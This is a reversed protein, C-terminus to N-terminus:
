LTNPKEKKDLRKKDTNEISKDQRPLREKLRGFSFEINFSVERQFERSINQQIFNTGSFDSEVVLRAPFFNRLSIGAYLKDDLFGKGVLIYHSFCDQM